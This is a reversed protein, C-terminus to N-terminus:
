KRKPRRTTPAAEAFKLHRRFAPPVTRCPSQNVERLAVTSRDAAAHLRDCALGRQPAVVAQVAGQPRKPYTDMRGFTSASLAPCLRWLQMSTPRAATAAKASTGKMEHASAGSFPLSSAASSPGAASARLAAQRFPVPLVAVGGRYSGTPVETAKRKEVAAFGSAYSHLQGLISKITRQATLSLDTPAAAGASSSGEENLFSELADLLPTPPSAGEETLSSFSTATDVKNAQIDGDTRVSAGCMPSEDNPPPLTSAVSSRRVSSATSLRAPAGSKPSTRRTPPEQALPSGTFGPMRRFGSRLTTRVSPEGLISHLITPDTPSLPPPGSNVVFGGYPPYSPSWFISETPGPPLNGQSQWPSRSPVAPLAVTTDRQGDCVAAHGDDSGDKSAAAAAHRLLERVDVCVTSIAPPTALSTPTANASTSAAPLRYSPVSADCRKM